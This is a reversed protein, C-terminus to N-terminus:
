TKYYEDFKPCGMIYERLEYDPEKDDSVEEGKARRMEKENAEEKKQRKKDRKDKWM